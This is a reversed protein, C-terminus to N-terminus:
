EIIDLLEPNCHSHNLIHQIDIAASQPQKSAGVAEM